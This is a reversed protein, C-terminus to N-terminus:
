LLAKITSDPTTYSPSILAIKDGKKLFAPATRETIIEKNSSTGSTVASSVDLTDNSCAALAMALSLAVTAGKWSSTMRSNPIRNQSKKTFNM